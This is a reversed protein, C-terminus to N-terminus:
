RLRSFALWWWRNLWIKWRRIWRSWFEISIRENGGTDLIMTVREFRQPSSKSGLDLSELSLSNASTDCTQDWGENRTM